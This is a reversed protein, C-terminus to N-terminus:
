NEGLEKVEIHVGPKEGIEARRKVGSWSVIQSDDVFAIGTLADWVARTLKDGDPRQVMPLTLRMAKPRPMVFETHVHQPKDSPDTFFTQAVNGIAKRWPKLKTSVDRLWVKNGRKAITKSGQPIPKGAVFFAVTTAM